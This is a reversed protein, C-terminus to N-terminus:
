PRIELKKWYHQDPCKHTFLEWLAVILFETGITVVAVNGKMFYITYKNGMKNREKQRITAILVVMRNTCSLALLQNCYVAELTEKASEM